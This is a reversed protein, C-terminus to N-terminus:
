GRNIIHSAIPFKQGQTAMLYYYLCGAGLGKTLNMRTAEKKM